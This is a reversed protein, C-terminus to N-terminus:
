KKELIKALHSFLDKYTPVTEFAGVESPLVFLKAGTQQAIYSATKQSYYPEIFIYAVKDKKMKLILENLYSASPTIGPKAEITAYEKAGVWNLFYSWSKHYTVVNQNKLHGLSTKWKVMSQQWDQQWTKFHHQIHHSIDPHNASFGKALAEMVKEGNRPDLMFHPNGQPHIDGHSRDVKGTSGDLVDLLKVYQAVSWHNKGGPAIMANRAGTILIPLWGVELDNGISLLYHTKALSLIFSPKADVFHPDQYGKSLSVVNGHQQLLNEALNKLSPVTTVVEVKGSGFAPSLSLLIMWNLIKLKLKIIFKLQLFKKM